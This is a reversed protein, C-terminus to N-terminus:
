KKAPAAAPEDFTPLPEPPPNGDYILSQRRQLYATRVFLYPDFQEHVLDDTSLLGAYTNILNLGNASYVYVDDRGPLYFSINTAADGVKGILDRNDSPGLLPLMLFWGEGVGWYGLTQGFDENHKDLGIETAVDLIGGIGATTNLLLRGTDSAGQVFKAQLLDNIITTPYFLNDFFNSVGRRVISPTIYVYGRAVPKLVYQGAKDNFAYVARNVPELPDRPDDAPSHACASLALLTTLAMLRCSSKLSVNM